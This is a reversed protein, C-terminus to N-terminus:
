HQEWKPLHHEMLCQLILTHLLLNVGVYIHTSDYADIAWIPLNFVQTGTVVKKWTQYPAFLTGIDVGASTLYGTTIASNGAAFLTGIDVGTSTLYGTTISM